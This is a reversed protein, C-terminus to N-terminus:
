ELELKTPTESQYTPQSYWETTSVENKELDYTIDDGYDSGDGAGSYSYATWAWTDVEKQLIVEQENNECGVLEIDLYGEDSGGSFHLIIQKVGFKKCKNYLKKSLPEAKM